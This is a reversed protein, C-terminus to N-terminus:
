RRKKKTARKEPMESVGQFSRMVWRRAQDLDERWANPMTVYEKMPRGHIPEFVSAGEELIQVRDAESLRVFVDSGFVGVFMNRNVFGVLNGFMPRIQIRPDDPLISEFFGKSEEDPRPFSM